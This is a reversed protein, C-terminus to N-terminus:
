NSMNDIYLVNSGYLLSVYLNDYSNLVINWFLVNTPCINNALSYPVIILFNQVMQCYRLYKTSYYLSVYLNDLSYSYVVSKWNSLCWAFPCFDIKGMVNEWCFMPCHWLYIFKPVLRPKPLRTVPFSLHGNYETALKKNWRRRKQLPGKM